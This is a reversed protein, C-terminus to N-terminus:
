ACIHARPNHNGDANGELYSPSFLFLYYLLIGSTLKWSTFPMFIIKNREPNRIYTLDSNPLHIIGFQQLHVRKKVQCVKKSTPLVCSKGLLIQCVRPTPCIKKSTPLICSKGLLIQCVRPSARLLHCTHGNAIPLISDM